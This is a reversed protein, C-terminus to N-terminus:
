LLMTQQIHHHVMVVKDKVTLKFTEVLKCTVKVIFITGTPMHSMVHVGLVHDVGDLVGDKIM